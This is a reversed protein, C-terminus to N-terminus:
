AKNVEEHTSNGLKALSANNISFLHHGKLTEEHAFKTLSGTMIAANVMAKGLVPTPIKLNDSFISLLGM